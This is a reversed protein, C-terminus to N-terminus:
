RKKRLAYVAVMIIFILALATVVLGVALGSKSLDSKDNSTNKAVRPKKVIQFGTVTINLSKELVNKAKTFGNTLTSDPLTFSKGGVNMIVAFFFEMKSGQVSKPYGKPIM